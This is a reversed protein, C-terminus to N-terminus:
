LTADANMCCQRFIINSGSLHHFNKYVQPVMVRKGEVIDKKLSAKGRPELVNKM